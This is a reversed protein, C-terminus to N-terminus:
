HSLDLKPCITMPFSRHYKARFENLATALLARYQRLTDGAEHLTYLNRVGTPNSNENAIVKQEVQITQQLECIQEAAEKNQREVMCKKNARCAAEKARLDAGMVKLEDFHKNIGEADGGLCKVENWDISGRKDETAQDEVKGSLDSVTMYYKPDVYDHPPFTILVQARAIRLDHLVKEREEPTRLRQRWLQQAKPQGQIEEECQDAAEKLKVIEQCTLSERVNAPLPLFKVGISGCAGTRIYVQQAQSTGAVLM